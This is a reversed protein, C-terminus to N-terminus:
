VKIQGNMLKPLLIDRAERLLTNQHHINKILHYIPKMEQNFFILDKDKPISVLLNRIIQQSINEQAAGMRFSLIYERNEILWNLIYYNSKIEDKEIIACCAQNTSSPQSLLGLKGITAGYMAMIVSGAPFLKASSKDVAQETIKEESELLISDALEKSKFWNIEGTFYEANTRSPTGGSSTNYFEELKFKESKVLLKYSVFAKEELLKIRKLNNEILDDYASLISAIHRQTSLPPLNIKLGRLVELRIGKVTSGIGLSEIEVKKNVIAWLMFKNDIRENPILAKLDQNIAMDVKNIFARGLGMRTSTIVTGAPILNSSSNELGSHTITDETSYLQYKDGVMDKVSCWPIDGNWYDSVTKSPTGGGVIKELVDNFEVKDWKM